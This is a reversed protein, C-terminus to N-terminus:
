MRSPDPKEDVVYEDFDDLEQIDSVLITGNCADHFPKIAHSTSIRAIQNCNDPIYAFFYMKDSRRGDNTVFEYDYLILAASLDDLQAKLDSLVEQRTSIYDVKLQTGECRYIM